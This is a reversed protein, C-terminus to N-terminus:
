APIQAAIEGGHSQAAAAFHGFKDAAIEAAFPMGFPKEEGAQRQHDLDVQAAVRGAFPQLVRNAM